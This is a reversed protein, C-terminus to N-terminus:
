KIKKVIFQVRNSNETADNFTFADFCELVYLGCKQLLRFYDFFPYIKQKHVEKYVNKNKLKIEFTNKHIRNIEDYSSLHKYTIEKFKGERIPVKIHIKSNNELSVDFTFIGTDSLLNHISTFLKLLDNKKILYNISDFCSIVLDFSYKFPLSTMNSCVKKVKKDKSSNLMSFSLDTAIINKFNDKLYFALLCNGAGLELVNSKNTVYNESLMVLYDSWYKYNIKRMLHPYIKSVLLYNKKYIPMLEKEAKPL